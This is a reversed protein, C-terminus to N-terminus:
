PISESSKASCSNHNYAWSHGKWRSQDPGKNTMDNKMKAKWVTLGENYRIKLSDRDIAILIAPPMFTIDKNEITSSTPVSYHTTHLFLLSYQCQFEWLIWMAHQWQEPSPSLKFTTSLLCSINQTSFNNHCIAKRKHVLDRQM